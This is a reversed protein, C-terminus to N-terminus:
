SLLTRQASSDNEVFCQPAETGNEISKIDQALNFKLLTIM